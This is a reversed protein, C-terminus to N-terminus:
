LTHDFCLFFSYWQGQLLECAGLQWTKSQNKNVVRAWLCLTKQPYNNFHKPTSGYGSGISPYSLATM